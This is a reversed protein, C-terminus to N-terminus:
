SQVVARHVLVGVPNTEYVLCLCQLYDSGFSSAPCGHFLPLSLVASDGLQETAAARWPQCSPQRGVAQATPVPYLSGCSDPLPSSCHSLQASVFEEQVSKQPLAM